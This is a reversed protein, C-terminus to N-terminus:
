ANERKVRLYAGPVIPAETKWFVTMEAHPAVEIPEMEGNWLEQLEATVPDAHPQLVDVTEGRFFRGRQRLEIFGNRSGVCVAVVEYHRIYRDNEPTQGPEGGFYFGTSYERHSLKETEEVIDQPLPVGPHEWHFDVARRYASTASAVYYASKARGEIKLSSIGAEVLEPIHEVMCLDKSSFLYAGKEEQVLSFREEPRRRETVFYEWRCPQACEGRNADRDTLYNSILCRGSFSMCMAGHVFAELELERPTHERIERIEALSVERALVVRKAGLEYFANATEYNVVGAQTSVHLEVGPAYQKALMMVGLDTVIFADVGIKACFELFGPLEALEYNRPLTNCTIYVKVGHQHCYQVAWQLEEEGFNSPGRRMGFNKGALYVADAGYQVASLLRERDGCPSLLEPKREMTKITEKMM